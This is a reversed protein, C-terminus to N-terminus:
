CEHDECLARARRIFSEVISLVKSPSSFIEGSADFSLAFEEPKVYSFILLEAERQGGPTNLRAALWSELMAIAATQTPNGSRGFIRGLQGDVMLRAWSAITIADVCNWEEGGLIRDDGNRDCNGYLRKAELAYAARMQPTPNGPLGALVALDEWNASTNEKLEDLVPLEGLDAKSLYLKVASDTLPRIRPPIQQRSYPVTGYALLDTILVGPDRVGPDFDILGLKFFQNTTEVLLPNSCDMENWSLKGDDNRDCRQMLREFLNIIAVPAIGSDRTVWDRIKVPEEVKSDGNSVIPVVSIESDNRGMMSHLLSAWASSTTGGLSHRVPDSMERILNPILLPYQHHLWPTMGEWPSQIFNAFVFPAREYFDSRRYYPVVPGSGIPSYFAQSGYLTSSQRIVNQFIAISSHFEDGTLVRNADGSGREGPFGIWRDGMIAILRFLPEAKAQIGEQLSPIRIEGPQNERTKATMQAFRLFLYATNLAASRDEETLSDIPIGNGNLDLARFLFRVLHRDIALESFRWTGIKQELRHNPATQFPLIPELPLKPALIRVLPNESARAQALTMSCYREGECFSNAWRDLSISDRAAQEARDLLPIVFGIHFGSSYPLHYVGALRGLLIEVERSLDFEAGTLRIARDFETRDLRRFEYDRFYSQVRKAARGISVADGEDLRIERVRRALFDGADTDAALATELLRKLGRSELIRSTRARPLVLEKLIFAGEALDDSEEGALQLKRLVTAFQESSLEGRESIVAVFGRMIIRFQETIRNLKRDRESRSDGDFNFDDWLHTAKRGLAILQDVTNKQIASRGSPHFFSLLAGFADWEADSVLPLELLGQEVLERLERISLEGEIRGHIRKFADNATNQVCDFSSILESKKARRIKRTIPEIEKLCSGSKQALTVSGQRDKEGLLGCGSASLAFVLLASTSSWLRPRNM